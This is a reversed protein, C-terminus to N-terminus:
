EKFNYNEILYAAKDQDQEPLLSLQWDDYWALVDIIKGDSLKYLSYSDVDKGGFLDAYSGHVIADFDGHISFHYGGEKSVHVFQYTRFRQKVM